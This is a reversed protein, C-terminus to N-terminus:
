EQGRNAFKQTGPAPMPFRQDRINTIVRVLHEGERHGGLLANVMGIVEDCAARGGAAYARAHRVRNKSM